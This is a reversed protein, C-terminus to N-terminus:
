GSNRGDSGKRQYLGPSVVTALWGVVGVWRIAAVSRGWSNLWTTPRSSVRSASLRGLASSNSRRQRARLTTAGPSTTGTM